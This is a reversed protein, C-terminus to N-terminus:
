IRKRSGFPNGRLTARRSDLQANMQIKEAKKWLQDKERVLEITREKLSVVMERLVQSEKERSKADEQAEKLLGRLEEEAVKAQALSAVLLNMEADRSNMKEEMVRTEDTRSNCDNHLASVSEEEQLTCPLQAVAPPKWGATDEERRQGAGADAQELTASTTLCATQARLGEAAARAEQLERQITRNELELRGVADRLRRLDEELTQVQEELDARQCEVAEREAKLSELRGEMTQVAQRHRNELEEMQREFQAVGQASKDRTSLQSSPKRMGAHQQHDPTCEPKRQTPREELVAEQLSSEMKTDEAQPTEEAPSEGQDESGAAGKEMGIQKATLLHLQALAEVLKIDINPREKHEIKLIIEELKGKLINLGQGNKATMSTIEERSLEGAGHRDLESVKEQAQQSAPKMDALSDSLLAKERALDERGLRREDRVKSELNEGAERSCREPPLTSDQPQPKSGQLRSLESQLAVVSMELERVQQQSQHYKDELSKNLSELCQLKSQHNETEAPQLVKGRWGFSLESEESDRHSGPETQGRLEVKLREAEEMHVQEAAALKEMRLLTVEQEKAALAQRLGDLMSDMEEVTENLFRNSDELQELRGLKEASEEQAEWAATEQLHNSCEEAKTSAMEQLLEQLEEIVCEKELLARKLDEVAQWEAQKSLEDERHKGVALTTPDGQGERLGGLHNGESAARAQCQYVPADHDSQPPQEPGSASEATKLTLVQSGPPRSDIDSASATEAEGRFEETVEAPDYRTNQSVEQLFSNWPIRRLIRAFTKFKDTETDTHGAPCETRQVGTDRESVQSESRNLSAKITLKHSKTEWRAIPWSMDLHVGILPLEFTVENLAYLHEVIDLRLTDSLFPSRAYYWKSVVNKNHFSFQIYDALQQQVLCIRIFARGKGLSTSLKLMNNVFNLVQMGRKHDSFCVCFYDWYGKRTGLISKKEKQDYQLLYELKTCLKHLAPVGDTIPRGDRGQHECLEQISAYLDRIVPLLQADPQAAM